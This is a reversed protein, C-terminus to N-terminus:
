SAKYATTEDFLPLQRIESRTLLSEISLHPLAARLETLLAAREDNFGNSGVQPLGFYHQGQIVFQSMAIVFLDGRSLALGASSLRTAQEIMCKLISDVSPPSSLSAFTTVPRCVFVIDLNIPEKAQSKPTAVAMEAKIPHATVVQLRAYALAGALALWAEERSHQFTFTVTGDPKLVRHCEAFVAGLGSEFASPDTDQVEAPHRTSEVAFAPESGNLALRLWVHFFDALESYHVNDFYPPDTVVADICGDPLPLSTSDGSLILADARGATIDDFTRALRVSLPHNIHYV